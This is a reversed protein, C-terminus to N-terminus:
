KRYKKRPNRSTHFIATIYILNKDPFVKYVVLYPFDEVKGERTEFKKNPFLLPHKDVADVLKKVSNEFRDGLGSQKEEYWEYAEFYERYAKRYFKVVFSM